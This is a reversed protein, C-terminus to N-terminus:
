KAMIQANPFARRTNQIVYMQNSIVGHLRVAHCETFRISVQAHHLLQLQGDHCRCYRIMFRENATGWIQTNGQM